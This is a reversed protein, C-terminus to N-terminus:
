LYLRVFACTGQCIMVAVRKNLCITDVLQRTKIRYFTIPFVTTRGSWVQRRTNPPLTNSERIM